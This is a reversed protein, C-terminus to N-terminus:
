TNASALLEVANLEDLVYGELETGYYNTLWEENLFNEPMEDLYKIFFQMDFGYSALVCMKRVILEWKNM